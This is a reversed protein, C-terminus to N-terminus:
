LEMQEYKEMQECRASIHNQTYFPLNSCNAFTLLRVQLDPSAGHRVSDSLRLQMGVIRAASADRAASASLGQSPPRRSQPDGTMDIGYM